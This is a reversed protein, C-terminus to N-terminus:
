KSKILLVKPNIGLQFAIDMRTNGSFVCKSGDNFEIVIPLDISAGSKFSNYIIQLFDENRYKPYSRYQKILDLLEEYTDTNSRNEINANIEPTITIIKGAAVAALFEAENEWYENGRLEHEIRYEQKLQQLSPVKWSNFSNLIEM